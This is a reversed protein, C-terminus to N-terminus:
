IAAGLEAFPLDRRLRELGRRTWSKVTNAPVDLARGVEGDTMGQVVKLRVAMAMKGPLRAFATELVQRLQSNRATDEPPPGADEFTEDIDETEGRRKRARLLDLAKNRVIVMMWTLAQARLPDYNGANQWISLYASQLVDSIADEDAVM